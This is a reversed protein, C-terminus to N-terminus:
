RCLVKTLGADKTVNPLSSFSQSRRKNNNNATDGCLAESSESEFVDDDEETTVPMSEVDPEEEEVNMTTTTQVPVPPASLPPSLESLPPSAPGTAATFIPVISHWPIVFASQAPKAPRAIPSSLPQSTIVQPQSKFPFNIKKYLSSHKSFSKYWVIYM